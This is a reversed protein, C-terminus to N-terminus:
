IKAINAIISAIEARREDSLEVKTIPEFKYTKANKIDSDNESENDVIEHFTKKFFMEDELSTTKIGRIQQLEYGDLFKAGCTYCTDIKFSNQATGSGIKVMRTKCSPCVRLEKDDRPQFTKNEYIALIEDANEHEEDFKEFERNDFYIGGCGQDCIDVNLKLQKIFVKNMRKGCAPCYVDVVTDAM